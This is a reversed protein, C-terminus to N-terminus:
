VIVHVTACRDRSQYTCHLGVDVGLVDFSV